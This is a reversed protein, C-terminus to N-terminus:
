QSLTAELAQYSHNFVLAGITDTRSPTDYAFKMNENIAVCLDVPPLTLSYQDQPTAFENLGLEGGLEGEELLKKLEHDRLNMLALRIHNLHACLVSLSKTTAKEDANGDADRSKYVDEDKDKDETTTADVEYASPAFHETEYTLLVESGEM